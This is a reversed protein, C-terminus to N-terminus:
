AKAGRGSAHATEDPRVKLGMLLFAAILSGAAMLIAVIQLSQGSQFLYGALIPGLAAGGRGVGIVIGTGGARMETPYVQAFLAYLGVIASNTCFGAAAAVLALEELTAYGRGFISVMVFAAMMAIIVLTRSAFKQTLLGLLLAGIAGGVNAWVLVSGALSASFGMDVVIKPTWKVIFYFTMIHLFYAGTLLITARAFHPTFFQKLGVSEKGGSEEALREVTEHGMRKLTANIKQLANKPRKQALFEISEPLLFYTLPIAVATLFAGLYFVSRWDYSVLLTSAISGGIIAGVPYGTAMLCVALSRRKANSYEAVMANSTALVGGIGIGTLFRVALLMNLNVAIAALYMGVAMVCLCGLLTPRRGIRDAINGLFISGVTMGILEMSLVIGLTTRTIGWDEVIGPAAFSISLVDFGDLANLFVCMAVAVFQFRGMKSQALIESPTKDTM